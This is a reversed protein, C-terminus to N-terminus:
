EGEYNGTPGSGLVFPQRVTFPYQVMSEKRSGLGRRTWAVGLRKVGGPLGRHLSSGEVGRFIRSEGM